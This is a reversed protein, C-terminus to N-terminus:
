HPQDPKRDSERRLVLFNLLANAEWLPPSKVIHACSQDRAVCGFKPMSTSAYFAGSRAHSRSCFVILRLEISINLRELGSHSRRHGPEM